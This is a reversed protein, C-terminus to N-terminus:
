LPYSLSLLVTEQEVLPDQNSALRSRAYALNATLRRLVPAQLAMRCGYQAAYTTKAYDAAAVLSWRRVLRQTYQLTASAGRSVFNAGEARSLSAVMGVRAAGTPQWGLDIGGNQGTDVGYPTFSFSTASTASMAWQPGRYLRYDSIVAVGSGDLRLSFNAQAVALDSVVALVLLGWRAV